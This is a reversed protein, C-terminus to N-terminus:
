PALLECVPCAGGPRFMAYGAQPDDGYETFDVNFIILLRVKGSGRSQAVADALWTAHQQLSTSSAWSFRPPVGGFDEGSLYGLETFCVPRAGGFAGYYLNLTPWFYWSYHDSGAPHGSTARPSTAGANHHVGICDAYQAAGAAAMGTVYRADSWANVGNDYGTPALAGTIVMIGPNVSKIANYAPTLMNYVYSTPSIQGAPWEFDINQENWVEIADPGLAAVGRLFETYAAFDISGPYAGAGTISLLVKFGAGHGANIPGAVASPDDGPAWKHQFKVWTMGVSHMENPHALSYTQGGLEFGRGAGAPVPPPAAAPQATPAAPAAPPAEGAPAEPPAEGPVEPPAESPPQTPVETPAPPPPQAPAGAAVPPPLLFVWGPQINAPNEWLTPYRDANLEILDWISIGHAQAIGATADNPQVTYEIYGEQADPAALATLPAALLALAVALTPLAIRRASKHFPLSASM